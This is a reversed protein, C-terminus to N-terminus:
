HTKEVDTSTNGIRADKLREQIQRRWTRPPTEEMRKVQPLVDPDEGRGHLHKRRRQGAQCPFLTKEVDTSTNRDLVETRLAVPHRRWTRPPTEMSPTKFFIRAKDEGRGHLHKFM